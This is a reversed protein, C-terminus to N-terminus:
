FRSVWCDLSLFLNVILISEQQHFHLFIIYVIDIMLFMVGTLITSSICLVFTVFCYYYKSYKSKCETADCRWQKVLAVSISTLSHDNLVWPPLVWKWCRHNIAIYGINILRDMLMLILIIKLFFGILKFCINWFISNQFLMWM